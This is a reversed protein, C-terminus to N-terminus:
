KVRRWKEAIKKNKARESDLFLKIREPSGIYLRVMKGTMTDKVSMIYWNM